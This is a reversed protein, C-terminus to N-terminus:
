LPSGTKAAVLYRSDGSQPNTIFISLFSAKAESSLRFYKIIIVPVIILMNTIIADKTIPFDIELGIIFNLFADLSIAFPLRSMM